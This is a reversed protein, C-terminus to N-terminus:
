SVFEIIKPLTFTKNLWECKIIDPYKSLIDTIEDQRIKKYSTTPINKAYIVLTGTLTNTKKPSSWGSFDKFNRKINKWQNKQEQTKTWIEPDRKFNSM